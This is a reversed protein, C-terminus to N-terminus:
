RSLEALARLADTTTFLGVVRDSGPADVILATGIRKDAMTAAVESLAATAEVTWPGESMAEEVKVVNVDVDPLSEVLAIDRSSVVGVLHGGHLVPLHRVRWQHMREQASALTQDDGITHPQSTMWYGVSRRDDSM